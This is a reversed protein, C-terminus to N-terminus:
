ATQVVMTEAGLDGIRQDVEGLYIFTVDAIAFGIGFLPVFWLFRLVNRIFSDFLTPPDGDVRRVEIDLLRKGVTTHYRAEAVTFYVLLVPLYLLLTPLLLTTLGDEAVATLTGTAALFVGAVLAFIGSAILIDIVFAAIRAGLGASDPPERRKWSVTM